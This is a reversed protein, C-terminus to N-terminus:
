LVKLVVLVLQGLLERQEKRGRLVLSVSPGKRVQQDLFVRSARLVLQDLFERFAKRVLLM